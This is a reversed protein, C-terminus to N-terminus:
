KEHVNIVMFKPNTFQPCQIKSFSETNRFFSRVNLKPHINLIESSKSFIIRFNLKCYFNLIKIKFFLLPFANILAIYIRVANIKAAIIKQLNQEIGCFNNDCFNKLILINKSFMEKWFEIDVFIRCFCEETFCTTFHCTYCNFYFFQM